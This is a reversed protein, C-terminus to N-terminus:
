RLDIKFYWHHNSFSCHQTKCVFMLRIGLNLTRVIWEKKKRKKKREKKEMRLELLELICCLTATKRVLCAHVFITCFKLLQKRRVSVALDVILKKNGKWFIVLNLLSINARWCWGLACDRHRQTSLQPKTSSSWSYFFYSLVLHQDSSSTRLLMCLM